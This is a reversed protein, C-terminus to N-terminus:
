KDRASILSFDCDLSLYRVETDMLDGFQLVSEDINATGFVIRESSKSKSSFFSTSLSKQPSSVSDQSGISSYDSRDKSLEGGGKWWSEDGSERDARISPAEINNLKLLSDELPKYKSASDADTSTSSSDEEESSEMWANYYRNVIGTM